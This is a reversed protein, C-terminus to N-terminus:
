NSDSSDENNVLGKAKKSEAEMMVAYKRMLPAWPPCAIIWKKFQGKEQALSYDTVHGLEM